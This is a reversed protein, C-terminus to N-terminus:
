HHRRPFVQRSQADPQEVDSFLEQLKSEDFNAHRGYDDNLVFLPAIYNISATNSFSLGNPIMHESVFQPNKESKGGREYVIGVQKLPQDDYIYLPASSEIGEMGPRSWSRSESICDVMFIPAASDEDLGRKFIM